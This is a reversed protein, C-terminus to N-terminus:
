PNLRWLAVNLAGAYSVWLLYPVLLAGAVPRVRAFAVTTALIAAWLAAIDIAGLDPRRMAFFLGSWALNLALQVAFLALAPGVRAEHRRRWVLWAAVAMMTYLATWVPGFVWNPPNWSPKRLTRYWTGVGEATWWGGLAAVGFCLALFGALMPLDAAIPRSARPTSGAPAPAPATTM